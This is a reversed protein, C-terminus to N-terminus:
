ANHQYEGKCIWVKIGIIGYTTHAEAFGYDLDARLTHRPISGVRSWEERAIEAGGIRGAIRINIGKAGARTAAMSVRKMVQKFSARKELQEAISKAVLLADLEPTKVEQVSVEVSRRQLLKSLSNRLTEIDQGKKGIIVGPRGSHIVVKLNEGTKEIFLRSVDARELTKNLFRRIKVDEVLNEGYSDRAFWSADWDRYGASIRFAKPHVKQGM